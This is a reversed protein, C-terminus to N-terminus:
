ASQKRGLGRGRVVGDQVAGGVNPGVLGGVFRRVEDNRRKRPLWVAAACLHTQVNFVAARADEAGGERGELRVHEFEIVRPLVWMVVRIRDNSDAREKHEVSEARRM